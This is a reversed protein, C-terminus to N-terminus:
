SVEKYLWMDAKEIPLSYRYSQETKLGQIIQSALILFLWYTVLVTVLLNNVCCYINEVNRIGLVFGWSFVKLFEVTWAGQLKNAWM